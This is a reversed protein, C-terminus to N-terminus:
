VVRHISEEGRLVPLCDHLAGRGMAKIADDTHAAMHPTAVVQPLSFMTGMTGLDVGILYAKM